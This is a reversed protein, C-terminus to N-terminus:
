FAGIHEQRMKTELMLRGLEDVNGNFLEYTAINLARDWIKEYKYFIYLM